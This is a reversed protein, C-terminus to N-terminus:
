RGEPRMQFALAWINDVAAEAQDQQEGEQELLDALAAVPTRGRGILDGPEYGSRTASWDCSRDPIPPHDFSLAIDRVVRAAM